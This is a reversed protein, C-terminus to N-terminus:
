LLGSQLHHKIARSLSPLFWTQGLTTAIAVVQFKAIMSLCYAQVEGFRPKKSINICIFILRFPLVTTRRCFRVSSSIGM